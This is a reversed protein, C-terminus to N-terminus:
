SAADVIIQSEICAIEEDDLNYRAYLDQDTWRREMPLDPVFRFNEPSTDQAIKRQHILFRVFKTRLYAEYNLAEKETGFSGAIIFTQTAASPPGAVFPVGIVKAPTRGHGDGAKPIFVKWVDVDHTNRVIDSRFMWVWEPGRIVLPISGSRRNKTYGRFNSDLGFPRKASVRYTVDKFTRHERIKRLISSVGNFRLVVGEGDRLDRTESSLIEGDVRISFTCDGEHDREWHFYSVGRKIEVGPFCDFLKPNDM